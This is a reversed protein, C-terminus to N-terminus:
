GVGERPHPLPPQVRWYGDDKNARPAAQCIVGPPMDANRLRKWNNRRATLRTVRQRKRNCKRCTRHCAVRVRRSTEKRRRGCRSKPVRKDTHYDHDLLSCGVLCAIYTTSRLMIALTILHLHMVALPTIKSDTRLRLNLNKLYSSALCPAPEGVTRLAKIFFKIDIIVLPPRQDHYGLSAWHIKTNHIRTEIGLISVQFAATLDRLVTLFGQLFALCAIEELDRCQGVGGVCIMRKVGLVPLTVIETMEPHPYTELVHPKSAQPDEDHTRDQHVSLLLNQPQFIDASSGLDLIEGVEPILTAACAQHGSIATIEPLFYSEPVYSQSALHDGLSPDNSQRAQDASPLPGHLMQEYNKQSELYRLSDELLPINGADSMFCASCAPHWSSTVDSAEKSIGIHRRTELLRLSSKLIPINVADPMFCCPCAELCSCEEGAQHLSSHANSAEKWFNSDQPISLAWESCLLELRDCCLQGGSNGLSIKSSNVDVAAAMAGARVAHLNPTINQQSRGLKGPTEILRLSGKQLPINVVDPMLSALCAQYLGSEKSVHHVSSDSNSTEKWSNIDKSLNVTATAGTMGIQTQTRGSSNGLSIEINNVDMGAMAGAIGAHLNPRINQQSRVNSADIKAVVPSFVASLNIDRARRLKSLPRQTKGASSGLSIKFNQGDSSALAESMIAQLDAAFILPNNSVIEESVEFEDM